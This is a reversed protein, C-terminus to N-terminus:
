KVASTTELEQPPSTRGAAVADVFCVTASSVVSIPSASSYQNLIPRASQGRYFRLAHPAAVGFGDVTETTDGPSWIFLRVDGTGDRGPSVTYLALYSIVGPEVRHMAALMALAQRSSPARSLQVDMQMQNPESVALNATELTGGFASSAARQMKIQTCGVTCFSM